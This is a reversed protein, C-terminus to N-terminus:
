PGTFPGTFQLIMKGASTSVGAGVTFGTSLSLPNPNTRTGRPMSMMNLHNSTFPGIGGAIFRAFGGFENVAVPGTTNFDNFPGQLTASIPLASVGKGAGSYVYISTVGHAPDWIQFFLQDVSLLEGGSLGGLMRIKFTTATPTVAAPPPPQPVPPPAFLPVALLSVARDDTNEPIKTSALSEGVADVQIQTASVGRSQLFSAVNGARRQSLALNHATTGTSSASGQLFIRARRGVLIGVVRTTLFALHEPKPKDVDIDYNSLLARVGGAPVQVNTTIKGPGTPAHLAM